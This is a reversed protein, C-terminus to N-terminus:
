LVKMIRRISLVDDQITCNYQFETIRELWTKVRNLHICFLSYFALSINPRIITCIKMGKSVYLTYNNRKMNPAKNLHHFACLTQMMICYWFPLYFFFINTCLVYLVLSFFVPFFIYQPFIEWRGIQRMQIISWRM